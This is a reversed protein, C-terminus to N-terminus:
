RTDMWQTGNNSRSAVILRYLLNEWIHKTEKRSMQDLGVKWWLQLSEDLFNHNVRLEVFIELDALRLDQGTENAPRLLLLRHSPRKKNRSGKGAENLKVIFCISGFCKKWPLHVIKKIQDGKQSYMKEPWKKHDINITYLATTLENQSVVDDLYPMGLYTPSHIKAPACKQM